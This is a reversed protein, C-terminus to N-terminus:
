ESIHVGLKVPLHIVHGVMVMVVSPLFSMTDASIV